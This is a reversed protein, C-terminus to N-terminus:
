ITKRHCQWTKVSGDRNTIDIIELLELIVLADKIFETQDILEIGRKLPAPVARLLDSFRLVFKPSFLKDLVYKIWPQDIENWLSAQDILRLKIPAHKVLGFHDGFRYQIMELGLPQNTEDSFFIKILNFGDELAPASVHIIRHSGKLPSNVILLPDQHIHGHLYIVNKRTELITERVYGANLMENYGDIRTMPQAFLPHHGIVVSVSDMDGERIHKELAIVHERSVAPCDIQESMMKEFEDAPVTAKLADLLQIVKDRIQEPFARHEGCLYCTNLPLFRISPAPFGPLVTPLDTPKPANVTLFENSGCIEEWNKLLPEFKESMPPGNIIAARNIDHNGPVALLRRDKWYVTDALQLAGHLFALCDKYGPVNGRTTLDGTLVVAVLNKEEGLIRIIGRTIDAIRSSSVAGVTASSLGPDKHDALPSAKLLDPYHVDGLQLFSIHSIPLYM